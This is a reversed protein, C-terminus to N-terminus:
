FEDEVRCVRNELLGEVGAQSQYTEEEGRTGWPTQAAIETGGHSVIVERRGRLVCPPSLVVSIAEADSEVGVGLQPRGRAEEGRRNRRPVACVQLADGGLRGRAKDEGVDPGGCFAGQALVVAVGEAMAAQHPHVVAAQSSPLVDLPPQALSQRVLPVQADHSPRVALPGKCQEEISELAHAVVGARLGLLAKPRRHQPFCHELRDCQDVLQDIGYGFAGDVVLIYVRPTQEVKGDRVAM